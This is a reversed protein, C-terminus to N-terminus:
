RKSFRQMTMTPVDLKAMFDQAAPASMFSAMSADADAIARWHVVVLWKGDEGLATERSIFGPQRSVHQREVAANVADFDAPTVGNALKFHVVEIVQPETVQTKANNPMMNGKKPLPQAAHAAASLALIVTLVVTKIANM